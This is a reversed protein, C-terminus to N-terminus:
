GTTQTSPVGSPLGIERPPQLRTSRVLSKRYIFADVYIFLDSVEGLLAMARVVIGGAASRIRM